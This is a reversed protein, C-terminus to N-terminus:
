RRFCERWSRPKEMINPWDSEQLPTPPGTIRLRWPPVRLEAYAMYKHHGDLVYECWAGEVTATVMLPREGAEIREMFHLIRDQDLRDEPQSPVLTTGEWPYYDGITRIPQVASYWDLWEDGAQTQSIALHYDGPPFHDLLSRFQAALPTDPSPGHEVLREYSDGAEAYSWEGLHSFAQGISGANDNWHLTLPEGNIYLGCAVADGRVAIRGTGSDLHFTEQRSERM